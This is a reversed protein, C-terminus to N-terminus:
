SRGPRPRPSSQPRHLINGNIVSNEGITPLTGGPLSAYVEGLFNGSTLSYLSNIYARQEQYKTLIEMQKAWDLGYYGVVAYGENIRRLSEDLDWDCVNLIAYLLPMVEWPYKLKDLLRSCYDLVVEERKNDAFPNGNQSLPHTISFVTPAPVHSLSTPLICNAPLLVPHQQNGPTYATTPSATTEVGIAGHTSSPSATLSDNRTPPPSIYNNAGGSTLSTKRSIQSNDSTSSPSPPKRSTSRNISGNVLVPQFSSEAHVTDSNFRGSPSDAIRYSYPSKRHEKELMRSSPLPISNSGNLNAPNSLPGGSGSTSTPSNAASDGSCSRTGPSRGNYSSPRHPPSAFMLERNQGSLMAEDQAQARRLATQMAMVRQREATLKCKQCLCNRFRCYRKHGRLPIKMRHNRCRACNPPTRPTLSGTSSAATSCNTVSLSKTEYGSDDAM